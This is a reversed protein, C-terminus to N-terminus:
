ESKCSEPYLLYNTRMKGYEILDEKWSERIQIESMGAELQKLLEDSGALLNFFRRRSVFGSSKGSLEYFNILYHLSFKQELPELDRLDMGYCVKGEQLPFRAMGDISQPTFYFAGFKPDPFGIMQFPFYTGRGISVETGEFFCLSPYLRVSLDNPLNPSPKVPLSYPMERSYQQMEVIKLSCQIANKLWGEGNIMMALEGVTLGHVVPIPHMGVFSTFGPKLMPGDFYDGNPNPRDFVIFEINQEACAEMMYHMSSIYTYFRVGVDQIDFVVVDIGALHAPSPKKLDGYLSVIPLQSRQDVGDKIYEGADADGRFGHEPVFVRRVDVGLALMTDLLHTDGVLATHNVLLGVRKGQLLPLWVDLREAGTLFQKEELQRADCNCGSFLLFFLVLLQPFVTKGSM